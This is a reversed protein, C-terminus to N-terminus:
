LFNVNNKCSTSRSSTLGDERWQINKSNEFMSLKEDLSVLKWCTHCSTPQGFCIRTKLDEKNLTSFIVEIIGCDGIGCDVKAM